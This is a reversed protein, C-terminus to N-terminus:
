NESRQCNVRALELSARASALYGEAQNVYAQYTSPDLKAIVQGEKVPSNFDAFLKEINGSIQTGVQVKVVPSLLGTATIAQVVEGRTVKISQFQPTDDSLGMWYWSGFGAIGGFVGVFLLRKLWRFYGHNTM